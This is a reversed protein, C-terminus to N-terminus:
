KKEVPSMKFETGTETNKKKSSKDTTPKKTHFFVIATLNKDVGPASGLRSGKNNRVTGDDYITGLTKGKANTVKGDKAIRGAEKGDKTMIVGNKVTAAKEGGPGYFDGTPTYRGVTMGKTDRITGDAEVNLMIEGLRDYIIKGSVPPKEKVSGGQDKGEKKMGNEDSKVSSPQTEPNVTQGSKTYGGMQVKQDKGTTTANPEKKQESAPQKESSKGDVQAMLQSTMFLGAMMVSLIIVKKM